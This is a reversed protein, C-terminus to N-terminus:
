PHERIERLRAEALAQRQKMDRWQEPNAKRAEAIARRWLTAEAETDAEFAVGSMIHEAM